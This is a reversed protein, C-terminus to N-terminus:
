KEPKLGKSPDTESAGDSNGSLLRCAAKFEPEVRSRFTRSLLSRKKRIPPELSVGHSLRYLSFNIICKRPPALSGDGTQLVQEAAEAADELAVAVGSVSRMRRLNLM